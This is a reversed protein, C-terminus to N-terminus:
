WNGTRRTFPRRCNRRVFRACADSDDNDHTVCVVPYLIDYLFRTQIILSCFTLPRPLNRSCRRCSHTTVLGNGLHLTEIRVHAFIDHSIVRVHLCVFVRRRARRIVIATVLCPVLHQACIIPVGRPENFSCTWSGPCM